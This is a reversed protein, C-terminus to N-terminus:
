PTPMSFPHFTKPGWMDEIMEDFQQLLTAAHPTRTLSCAKLFANLQRPGNDGLLLKGTEAAINIDLSPTPNKGKLIEEPYWDKYQAPVLVLKEYVGADVDAVTAYEWDRLVLGHQESQILFAEPVPAVHILGVNTAGSLSALMRRFMWAFDRPNVGDPHADIVERLTYFKYPFRKTVLVSRQIGDPTAYQFKDILEPYFSHLPEVTERLTKLAAATNSALDADAPAKCILIDVAEHGADYSGIWRQFVETEGDKTELTYEHKRSVIKIRGTNGNAPSHAPISTTSEWLENLRLFAREARARGKSTQYRDPHADRVLKRYIKKQEDYNGSGFLQKHDAASLITDIVTGDVM